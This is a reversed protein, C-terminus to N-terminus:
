AEAPKGGLYSSGTDMSYSAQHAGSGTQVVHPLSFEASQSSKTRTTTFQLTHSNAIDSYNSTTIIQLHEIFGIVLGLGM